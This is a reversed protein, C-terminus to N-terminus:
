IAPPNRRVARVVTINQALHPRRVTPAHQMQPVHRNHAHAHAHNGVHGLAGPPAMPVTPIRRRADPAHGLRCIIDTMVVPPSARHAACAMVAAGPARHVRPRVRVTPIIETAHKQARPVLCATHMQLVTQRRAHRPPHGTPLVPAFLIAHVDRHPRLTDPKAVTHGHVMHGIVVVPRDPAHPRLRVARPVPPAIVHARNAAVARAVRPPNVIRAPKPLHFPHVHPAHVARNITIRMVNGHVIIKLRMCPHRHVIVPTHPTPRHM